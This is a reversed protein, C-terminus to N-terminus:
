ADGPPVGAAQPLEDLFERESQMPEDPVPPDQEIGTMPTGGKPTSDLRRFRRGSSSRTASMQSAFARLGSCRYSAMRTKPRGSCDAQVGPHVSASTGPAAPTLTTM